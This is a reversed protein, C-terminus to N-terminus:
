KVKYMTFTGNTCQLDDVFTKVEIVVLKRTKNIVQAIAILSGGQVANLYNISSNLTIFKGEYEETAIGAASDSITFYVGGHVYGYYNLCQADIDMSLKSYGTEKKLTKIGNREMFDM